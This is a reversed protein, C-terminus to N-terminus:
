WCEPRTWQLLVHVKWYRLRRHRRGESLRRSVPIGRRRDHPRGTQQAPLRRRRVHLRAAIAATDTSRSLGSFWSSIRRSRAAPEGVRHIQWNTLQVLYVHCKAGPSSFFTDSHHPNQRLPGISVPSNKIRRRDHQSRLAFCHAQSAAHAISSQFQLILFGIISVNVKSQRLLTTPQLEKWDSRIWTFSSFYTSYWTCFKLSIAGSSEHGWCRPKKAPFTSLRPLIAGM